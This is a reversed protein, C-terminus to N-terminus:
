RIHGFRVFTVRKPALRQSFVGTRTDWVGLDTIDDSNWNGVAPLSTKTGYRVSKTTGDPMALSFTTTAPTYVGVDTRGDGDWDGTVPYGGSAGYVRTTMAGYADRLAFKGTAPRYVGVEDVGNGDWDGTVPVDGARGFSIKTTKGNAALLTFTHTTTRWVGLDTQGDGNWDGTIPTDIPSGLSALSKSGDPLRKRFVGTSPERGFVGVDSIRDGNWDGVVPVDGCSRSRLWQDDYKFRAGNFYAPQDVRDYRQEYHLHPGTSGGTSGLLGIVQGQDVQQGVTVFARLLHAHLTTWGGGHDIVLYRGYSTDGLDVVSEVVGPATALVPHGLDHSDRNWDIARESPSHTPRTSGEWREGCAFPLQFGPRPATAGAPAAAALVCVATAVAAALPLWVRCQPRSMLRVLCEESERGPRTSRDATM